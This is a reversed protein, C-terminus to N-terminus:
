PVAGLQRMLSLEDTVRWHERIRCHAFREINIQLVDVRKGTAPLGFLDGRQTGHM